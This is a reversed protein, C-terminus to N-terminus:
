SKISERSRQWIKGGFIGNKTRWFTCIEDLIKGCIGFKTLNRWFDINEDRRGIKTMEDTKRWFRFGKSGVQLEHSTRQSSYGLYICLDLDRFRLQQGWRINEQPLWRPEIETQRVNAPHVSAAADSTGRTQSTATWYKWRSEAHCKRSTIDHWQKLVSPCSLGIYLLWTMKSRHLMKQPRFTKRGFERYVM